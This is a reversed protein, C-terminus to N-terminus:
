QGNQAYIRLLFIACWTSRRHDHVPLIIQGTSHTEILVAEDKLKGLARIHVTALRAILNLFCDVFAAHNPRTAVFEDHRISAANSIRLISGDIVILFAANPLNTWFRWIFVDFEADDVHVGLVILVAAHVLQVNVGVSGLLEAAFVVLELIPHRSDTATGLLTSGLKLSLVKKVSGSPQLSKALSRARILTWDILSIVLRFLTLNFSVALEICDIVFDHCNDKFTVSGAAIMVSECNFPFNIITFFWSWWWWCFDFVRVQVIPDLIFEDVVSISDKGLGFHKYNARGVQNLLFLAVIPVLNVLRVVCAYSELIGPLLHLM